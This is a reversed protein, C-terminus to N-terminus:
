NLFLGKSSFNPDSTLHVGLKRLGAEDGPTPIHTMHVDCGELQNLHELALQAAPNSIASISLAILTEELDLSVMKGKLIEKKLFTVSDIINQPLLHLKKPLGALHKTANLILSSAAHMLPTNQGTAITGDALQIAAGCFIGENGKGKKQADLAAQRAPMVVLRNEVKAGINKMILESRVLIDKEVIGM